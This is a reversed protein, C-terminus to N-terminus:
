LNRCWYLSDAGAWYYGPVFLTFGEKILNNSSAVNWNVTDTLVEKLGQKRGWQLRVRVLRRQLGNGRASRIVGVRCLYLQDTGPIRRAGAFAVPTDKDWVLWWAGEGIRPDRDETRSFISDHIQQVLGLDRATTARRIQFPM